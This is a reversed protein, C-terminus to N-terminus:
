CMVVRTKGDWVWRGEAYTMSLTTSRLYGVIPEPLDPNEPLDACRRRMVLYERFEVLAWQPPRMELLVMGVVKGDILVCSPAAGPVETCRTLERRVAATDTVLPMSEQVRPMSRIFRVAAALAGANTAPEQARVPAATCLLGLVALVSVSLTGRTTM